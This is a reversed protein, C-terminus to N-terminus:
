RAWRALVAARFADVDRFHWYFSGRSVGLLKALPDAKLATFGNTALAKLGQEVWRNASFQDPMPRGVM